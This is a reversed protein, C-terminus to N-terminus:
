KKMPSIEGGWKVTGPTEGGDGKRGWHGNTPEKSYRVNRYEGEGAVEVTVMGGKVNEWVGKVTAPTQKNNRQFYVEEGVSPLDVKEAGREAFEADSKDAKERMEAAHQRVEQQQKTLDKQPDSSGTAAATAPTHPVDQPTSKPTPKREKEESM